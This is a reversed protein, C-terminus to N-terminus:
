LTYVLNWPICFSCSLWGMIFPVNYRWWLSIIVMELNLNQMCAYVWTKLISVYIGFSDDEIVRGWGKRRFCMIFVYVCLASFRMLPCELSCPSIEKIVISFIVKPWRYLTWIWNKFYVINFTAQVKLDKSLTMGSDRHSVGRTLGM